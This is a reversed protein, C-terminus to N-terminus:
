RRERMKVSNDDYSWHTFGLITHDWVKEGFMIRLERLMQHLSDNIRDQQGHFLLLFANTTKIENKLKKVTRDIM